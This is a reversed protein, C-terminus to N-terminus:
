IKAIILYGFEKQPEGGPWEAETLKHLQVDYFGYKTLLKKYDYANYSSALRLGLRKVFSESNFECFMVYSRAIRKIERLYKGIKKPSVYILSMDTLVVDCSKDSIFIKEGSGVNLIADFPMIEKALEIAESNVDCGGYQVQFRPRDGRMREVIEAILAQAQPRISNSEAM